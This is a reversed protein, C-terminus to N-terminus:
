GKIEKKILDCKYCNKYVPFKDTQRRKHIRYHGCELYAEFIGARKTYMYEIVKKKM